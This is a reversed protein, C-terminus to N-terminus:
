RHAGVEQGERLTLVVLADRSRAVVYGSDISHALYTGVRRSWLRFGAAADVAVLECADADDTPSAVYVVTHGDTVMARATVDDPETGVEGCDFRMALTAADLGVIRRRGSGRKALLAFVTPGAVLFAKLSSGAVPSPIRRGRPGVWISREDETAFLVASPTAAPTVEESLEEVEEFFHRRGTIADFVLVGEQDADPGFSEVRTVVSRGLLSCAGLSTSWDGDADGGHTSLSRPQAPDIRDCRTYPAGYTVLAVSANPIARVEFDSRGEGFTRTHLPRGSDRDFAALTHDVCKVLVVGPQGPPYADEVVLRREVGREEPTRAVADSLQAVWRQRGSALDLAVLAARNAVYVTDRHVRFSSASLAAVWPQGEFAEWLPQERRLDFALLRPPAGLPARKSLVVPGLSPSVAVVTDELQAPDPGTAVPTPPPRRPADSRGAGDTRAAGGGQLAGAVVTLAYAIAQERAEATRKEPPIRAMIEEVAADVAANGTSTSTPAAAAPARAVVRAHCFRCEVVSGHPGDLRVGCHSCPFSVVNM